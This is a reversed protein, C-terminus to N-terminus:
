SLNTRSEKPDIVLKFGIGLFFNKFFNSNLPIRLICYVLCIASNRPPSLKM